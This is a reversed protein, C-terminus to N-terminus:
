DDDTGKLTDIEPTCLGGDLTRRAVRCAKPLLVPKETSVVADTGDLQANFDTVLRSLEAAEPDALGGTCVGENVLIAFVRGATSPEESALWARVDQHVRFDVGTERKIRKVIPITLPNSM